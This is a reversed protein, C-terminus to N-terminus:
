ELAAFGEALEANKHVPEMFYWWNRGASWGHEHANQSGWVCLASAISAGRAREDAIRVRKGLARREDESAVAWAGHLLERVDVDNRYEDFDDPYGAQLEAAFKEWSAVLGALGGDVVFSPCGRAALWARVRDVRPM